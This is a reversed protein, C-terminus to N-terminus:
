KRSNMVYFPTYELDEWSRYWAQYYPKVKQLLDAFAKQEASLPRAAQARAERSLARLDLSLIRRNEMVVRGGIIVTNVHSGKARHIFLEAIDMDPPATSEGFDGLVEGLDVLIVDAKMGPRLEGIEGRFGCVRAANVMGMQLVTRADLAPTHALDFGPVRHLKHIVRLEQIADEDDNFAKDDIGLAVNVGAKVLEYVPAIGNRVALNCSPHHTISAHSRALLEIDSASVFVAHGLVLNEGLLGLDDLHAVLSKGHKKLGYAKQVPTQLTHLHIPVKGLTDAKEKVRLLFDDTCGQTWSPGLLVRTEEGNFHRYLEDFLALYQDVFAGKDYDVMPVVAKHLDAPLTRIFEEEDLALRNMNRGGPSYALRIGASRAGEICKRANEVLNPEEGWYNLHMTTCGNRIHKVASLATRLEPDIPPLYAWDLLLNELYDFPKGCQVSSLGSGHSHGDILGPMLLQKGDGKELAQTHEKKLNTYDGVETIRGESILVAGDTITSGPGAEPSVLVYKGRALIDKSSSM